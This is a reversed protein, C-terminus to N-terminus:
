LVAPKLWGRVTKWSYAIRGQKLGQEVADAPLSVKADVLNWHVIEKRVAEPWSEALATLGVLLPAAEVAPKAPKAAPEPASAAPATHFPIPAPAPPTPVRAPSTPVPAAPSPGNGPQGNDLGRAPRPAFPISQTPLPIASPPPPTPAGTLGGRAPAIPQMPAPAAQRASPSAAPAP